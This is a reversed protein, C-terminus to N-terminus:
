TGPSLKGYWRQYYEQYEGSKVRKWWPKNQM